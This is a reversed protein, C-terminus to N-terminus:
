IGVFPKGYEDGINIEVYHGINFYDSQTDSYDWNDTNLVALIKKMTELLEPVVDRKLNYVSIGRHGEAVYEEVLGSWDYHEPVILLEKAGKRITLVLESHNDVRLTYKWDSPVVNKLEAAVKAKLEKSVYAM